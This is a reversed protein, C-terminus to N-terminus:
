EVGSDDEELKTCVSHPRLRLMEAAERMSVVVVVADQGLRATSALQAVGQGRADGELRAAGVAEEPPDSILQSGLGRPLQLLVGRVEEANGLAGGAGASAYSASQTVDAGAAAAAAVAPGSGPSRGGGTEARGEVRPRKAPGPQCGAEVGGRVAVGFPAGGEDGSEGDSSWELAAASRPRVSAGGDDGGSGGGGEGEGGGGGASAPHATLAAADRRHAMLLKTSVLIPLSLQADIVVRSLNPPSLCPLGYDLEIRRKLQSM